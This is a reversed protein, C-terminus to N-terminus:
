FHSFHLHEAFNTLLFDTFCLKLEYFTNFVFVHEKINSINKQQIYHSLLADTFNFHM